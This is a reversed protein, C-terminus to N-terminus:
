GTEVICYREKFLNTRVNGSTPINKLIDNGIKYHHHLPYNINGSKLM